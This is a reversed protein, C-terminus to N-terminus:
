RFKYLNDNLIHVSLFFVNYNWQMGEQYLCSFTYIEGIDWMDQFLILLIFKIQNSKFLKIAVVSYTHM